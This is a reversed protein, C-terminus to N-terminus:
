PFCLRWGREGPLTSETARALVVALRLTRGPGVRSEPVSLWGCEVGSGLDTASFGLATCEDPEFANPSSQATAPSVSLLSLPVASALVWTRWLRVGYGLM